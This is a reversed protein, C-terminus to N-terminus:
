DTTNRRPVAMSDTAGNVKKKAWTMADVIPIRANAVDSYFGDVVKIIEGLTFGTISVEKFQENAIRNNSIAALFQMGEGVGLLYMTKSEVRLGTWTRGNALGSTKILDIDDGALVQGVLVAFLLTIIIRM